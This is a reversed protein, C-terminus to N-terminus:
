VSKEFMNPSLAGPIPSEQPTVSVENSSHVSPEASMRCCRTGMSQHGPHPKLHPNRRSQSNLCRSLQSLRAWDRAMHAETKAAWSGFTDETIGYLINCFTMANCTGRWDKMARLCSAEALRPALACHSTCARAEPTQGQMSNERM